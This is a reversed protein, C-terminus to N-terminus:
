VFGPTQTVAFYRAHLPGSRDLIITGSTNTDTCGGVADADPGPTYNLLDEINNGVWGYVKTYNNAKTSSCVCCMHVLCLMALKGLTHLYEQVVLDGEEANNGAQDAGGGNGVWLTPGPELWSSMIVACFTLSADANILWATPSAPSASIFGTPCSQIMLFRWATKFIGGSVIISIAFFLIANSGVWSHNAISEALYEVDKSSAFPVEYLPFPVPLSSCISSPIIIYYLLLRADQLPCVQWFFRLFLRTPPRFMWICWICTLLPYLNSIVISFHHYHIPPTLLYSLPLLWGSASCRIGHRWCFSRCCLFLLSIMTFIIFICIIIIIIM